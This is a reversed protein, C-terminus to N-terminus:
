FEFYFLFSYIIFIYLLGPGASDPREGLRARGHGEDGHASDGRRTPSQGRATKWRSVARQRRFNVFSMYKSQHALLGNRRYNKQHCTNKIIIFGGRSPSKRSKLFPM